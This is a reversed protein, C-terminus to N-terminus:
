CNNLAHVIAGLVAAQYAKLGELNLHVGKNEYKERSMYARNGLLVMYDVLKFKRRVKTNVYNNVLTRRRQFLEYPVAGFKNPGELFRPEIQSVLKLCTPKVVSQLKDFFKYALEKIQADSVSEVLLNGVFIIVVIDPDVSSVFEFESPNNLIYDYDKGPYSKFTFELAVTKNSLAVERDWDSLYQGLDRVYSHGFVLVKMIM